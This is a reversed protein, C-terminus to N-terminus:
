VRVFEQPSTTPLNRLHGWPAGGGLIQTVQPGKYLGRGKFTLQVLYNAELLYSIAFPLLFWKQPWTVFATVRGNRVGEQQCVRRSKHAQQSSALQIFGRPSSSLAAELWSDMFFWIWGVVMHSPQFAPFCTRGWNFRWFVGCIHGIGQSKLSQLLVWSLWFSEKRATRYGLICEWNWLGLLQIRLSGWGKLEALRVLSPRGSEPNGSGPRAPSPCIIFARASM